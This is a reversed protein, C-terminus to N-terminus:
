VKILVVRISRAMQQLKLVMAMNITMLGNGMIFKDMKKNLAVRGM